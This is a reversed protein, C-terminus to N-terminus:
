TEKRPDPGATGPHHDWPAALRGLQTVITFLAM